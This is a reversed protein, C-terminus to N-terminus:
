EFILRGASAIERDLASQVLQRLLTQYGIGREAALKKARKIDRRRLMMSIKLLKADVCRM